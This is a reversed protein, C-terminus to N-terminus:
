VGVDKTVQFVKSLIYISDEIRLMTYLNATPVGIDVYAVRENEVFGPTIM